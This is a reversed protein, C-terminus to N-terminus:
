AEGPGMMGTKQQCRRAHLLGQARLMVEGGHESLPLM